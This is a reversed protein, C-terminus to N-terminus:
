ITQVWSELAQRAGHTTWSVASSWCYTGTRARERIEM